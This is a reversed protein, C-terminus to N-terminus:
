LFPSTSHSLTYARLEFGLWGGWFFAHAVFLLKFCLEFVAEEKQNPQSIFGTCLTVMKQFLM